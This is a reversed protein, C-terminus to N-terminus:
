LKFHTLVQAPILTKILPQKGDYGLFLWDTKEDDKIAVLISSMAIDFSSKESNYTVKGSFSNELNAIILNRFSEQNTVATDNLILTLRMKYDVKHYFGPTLKYVPSIASISASDIRIKMEENDYINKFYSILQERPALTFLKPHVYDMLREFNLERNLRMYEDLRIKLKSDQAVVLFNVFLACLVFFYKKM